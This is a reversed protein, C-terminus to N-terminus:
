HSLKFVSCREIGALDQRREHEILGCESMIQGVQDAMGAALEVFVRGNPRLLGPLQSSVRQYAETGSKGSFLARRPEFAVVDRMLDAEEDLGIYPPNIVIIDFLGGLATGWSGVFFATRDLVHNMAANSRAVMITDYSIDVGVGSASPQNKLLAILLCGSGVGLDLIAKATQVYEEAFELALEVLTESDPRPILTEANVRFPLGWFEKYGLIYAIPERNTRRLILQQFEDEIKSDLEISNNAYLYEQSVKMIHALLIRAEHRPREIESASLLLSGERLLHELAIM